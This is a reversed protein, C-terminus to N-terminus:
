GFGVLVLGLFTIIVGVLKPQYRPEKLVVMGLLAGIPIGVQRFAVVYSVNTVYGMALLVLTYAAYISVGILAAQGIRCRSVQFLSTRETKRIIIILSLWVSTSFGEISAYLLTLTMNEAFGSTQLRILHLATSDIMSYGLTGLAAVLAMLSTMNWYTKWNLSSFSRMPVTFCGIAVLIMGLIAWLSLPKGHGILQTLTTVMLVPMARLLPYAVSLDGARYAGALAIYYVAQCLGALLLYWWVLGSFGPFSFGTLFLAPLLCLSGLTNAVLMFGTTPNERKGLLNWAAHLSASVILLIAAVLTM